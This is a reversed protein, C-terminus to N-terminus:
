EYMLEISGIGFPIFTYEDTYRDPEEFTQPSSYTNELVDDKWNPGLLNFLTGAICVSIDNQGDTVFDSIDYIYPKMYKECIEKGNIFIRADCSYVDNLRIYIHKYSTDPTISTNVIMKGAYFPYGDETINKYNPSSDKRTIWFDTHDRQMVYFDGIIYVADLETCNYDDANDILYHGGCGNTNNIKIGSIKIINEGKQLNNLPVKVFNVDIYNEDESFVEKDGRNRLPQLLSGNLTISDLNQACEIVAYVEGQPIEDINFKYEAAFETGDKLSYFYDKWLRPFPMDEAVCKSNVYVTARNIPMVNLATMETSSIICRQTKLKGRRISAGTNTYYLAPQIDKLDNDFLIAISGAAYITVDIEVRNDCRKFPVEHISGDSLDLLYPTREDEISLCAQIERRKETNAFLVLRSKGDNKSCCYIRKANKGSLIDTTLIRNPFLEKLYDIAQEIGVCKVCDESYPFDTQLGDIRSPFPSIYILRGPASKSFEDLLRCTSARLTLSPPVVVADYECEGIVFKDNRVCAHNQMITEDGYHFDLNEDLLRNTLHGFPEDYETSHGPVRDRPDFVSWCSGITHIVLIKTERKGFAAALSLRSIYDAFPKEDSWWPQQYSLAAPHDRKREGRMSYLSIHPDVFNIGLIAEWDAIWKREKFGCQQGICGYVESFTREKGLQESVSAVQKVTINRDIHRGLKDIGPYHMFEYHPMVSGIWQTQYHLSDEAMFHGVLKLKNENCWNFYQKTFSELVLASASDFFDFRTKKYDNIPFFLETLHEKICYGCRKEFFEELYESWPLVPVSYANNMLYNPEDTFIGPIKSGFHQGCHQKYREPACEIFKKVANPNMLDAYCAGNYWQDGLASVRKAIYYHVGNYDYETFISDNENVEDQTLLVLARSRYEETQTVEGGGYGSPWKDEDYLWPEIGAEYAAEVCENIIEFWKPSNITILNGVRAHMFFGGWGQAAMENIQRKLEEKNPKDNWSWLPVPRYQLPIDTFQNKKM